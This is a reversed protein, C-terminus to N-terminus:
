RAYFSRIAGSVAGVDTDSLTFASPLWVAKPAVRTSNPFTDDAARYPPQRHIPHWFRRCDIERARLFADLDDRREVIADTWLPCEGGVLDFGPLTVQDIGALADAYAAHIRRQRELRQDLRGLQAVGVAAQLNTLKFNLGFVPHLDDGGTGTSARGQDKLERLRTHVADDDTLVAGGQGTTISKNPSFSLCGAVGFTGLAKGGRRSVFAEAADEVVAVGRARAIRLIDAMAAGRGSVHVPIVAKTRATIAREFAGPDLCLTRADIDVLIVAAGTARVANATAIFTLDPVVVEDGVGVGVALLALYLAATGSTVAVAHKAGTREALLREFQRTVAGDNIYNSDLVEKLLAYEEPGVQPEWWPIKKTM